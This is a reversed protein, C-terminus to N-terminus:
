PLPFNTIKGAKNKYMMASLVEHKNLYYDPPASEGQYLSEGMNFKLRQPALDYKEIYELYDKDEAGTDLEVCLQSETETVVM